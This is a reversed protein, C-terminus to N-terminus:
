KLQFLAVHPKGDPTTVTMRYCSNEHEADVLQLRAPEGHSDYRLSTGGTDAAYDIADSADGSINDCAVKAVSITTLAVGDTIYNGAADKLQWKIPYTRGSNGINKISPDSNLPSLFGVFAYAVSYSLSGRESCLQEDGPLLCPDYPQRRVPQVHHDIGTRQRQGDANNRDPHGALLM